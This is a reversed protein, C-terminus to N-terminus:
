LAKPYVQSKAAILKEKEFYSISEEINDDVLLYFNNGINNERTLYDLIADLKENIANTSLMLIDIDVFYLTKNLSLSTNQIAKDVSSGTSKYIKSTEDDDKKNERIELNIKYENEQYDITLMSVVGLENLEIYNYCGCLPLLFLILLIKKM